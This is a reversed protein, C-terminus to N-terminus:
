NAAHIQIASRAPVYLVAFKPVQLGMIPEIEYLGSPICSVNIQNSRWPRELTYLVHRNVRLLGLTAHEGYSYRDLTIQM